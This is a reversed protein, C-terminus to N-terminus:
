FNSQCFTNETLVEFRGREVRNIYSLIDSVALMEKQMKINLIIM